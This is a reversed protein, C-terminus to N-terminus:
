VLFIYVILVENHRKVNTLRKNYRKRAREKIVQLTQRDPLLCLLMHSNLEQNLRNEKM